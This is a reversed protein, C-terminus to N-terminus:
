EKARKRPAKPAAQAQQQRYSALAADVADRAVRMLAADSIAVPAPSTLCLGGDAGMVVEAGRERMEGLMRDVAFRVVDSKGIKGHLRRVIEDLRAEAESEFRIQFPHNLAM